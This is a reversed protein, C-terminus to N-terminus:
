ADAGEMAKLLHLPIGFATSLLTDYRQRAEKWAALATLVEPTIDGSLAFAIDQAYTVDEREGTPRVLVVNIMGNGKRGVGAGGDAYRQTADAIAVELLAILKLLPSTM